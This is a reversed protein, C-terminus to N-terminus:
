FIDAPDVSRLKQIALTGSVTCMIIVSVFVNLTKNTDM